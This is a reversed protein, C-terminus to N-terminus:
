IAVAAFIAPQGPRRRRGQRGAQPAEARGEIHKAPLVITAAVFMGPKLIKDPNAITAQVRINRTESAIPPEITTIKGEFVRGAHSAHSALM